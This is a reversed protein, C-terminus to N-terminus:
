IKDILDVGPYSRHLNVRSAAFYILVERAHIKEDNSFLKKWHSIKIGM